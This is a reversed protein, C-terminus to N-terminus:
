AQFASRAPIMTFWEENKGQHPPSGMNCLVDSPGFRDDFPFPITPKRAACAVNRPRM